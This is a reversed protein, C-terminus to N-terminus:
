RYNRLLNSRCLRVRRCSRRLVATWPWRERNQSVATCKPVAPCLGIHHEVAESIPLSNTAGRAVAIIIETCSVPYKVLRVSSTIDFHFEQVPM